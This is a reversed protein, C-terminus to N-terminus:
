AQEMDSTHSQGLTQASQKSYVRKEWIPTIPAISIFNSVTPSQVHLEEDESVPTIAPDIDM